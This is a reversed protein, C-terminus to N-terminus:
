GGGAVQPAISPDVKKGFILEIDRIMSFLLVKRGQHPMGGRSEVSSLFPTWRDHTTLDLGIVPEIRRVLEAGLLVSEMNTSGQDFPITNIVIDYPGKSIGISGFTVPKIDSGISLAIRNVRERDSGALYTKKKLLSCAMSAARGSAGTGLVLAKGSGGKQESSILDVIGYVETNYGFYKGERGVALNIAGVKGSVPDIWDMHSMASTMYPMGVSIGRIGFKRAMEMMQLIDGQGTEWQLMLGNLDNKRLLDNFEGIRMSNLDSRGAHLCFGTETDLTLRNSFWNNESTRWMTGLTKWIKSELQFKEKIPDGLMGAYQISGSELFALDSGFHYSLASFERRSSPLARMVTVKEPLEKKLSICTRIARKLDMGDSIALNVKYGDCLNLVEPGPTSWENINGPYSSLMVPTGSSRAKRSLEVLVDLEIDDELEIWQFGRTAIMKLLEIRASEPLDSEEMVGGHRKAPLSAISNSRTLASIQTIYVGFRARSEPGKTPRLHDFRIQFNRFGMSRATSYERRLQNIDQRAIVLVAWPPIAGQDILEEGCGAPHHENQDFEGGGGILPAINSFDREEIDLSRSTISHIFPDKEHLYMTSRSIHPHDMKEDRSGSLGKM